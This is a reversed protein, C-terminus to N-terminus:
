ESVKVFESADVDNKLLGKELLWATNNNWTEATMSLFENGSNKELDLLIDLSAKEVDRNLAYNEADEHEFLVDLGAEPDASVDEFGKKCAALFGDYLDPDAEYATKNAVFIIEYEEPVGYEELTWYDIEYGNNQLEVVENNLMGGFCVDVNGSTIATEIDFGVDILEFDSEEVGCSKACDIIMAKSSESGSYGVKKGVFDAPSLINNEKLAIACSLSGQNIAGIVEIDMGEDAYGITCDNMYYLGIEAKGAAPFTLGDSVGAPATMTVNLGEEAFYGKEQAVYMFSHIANPYWDLIVNFDKLEASDTAAQTSESESTTTSSGCGTLLTFTMVTATLLAFIRKKM